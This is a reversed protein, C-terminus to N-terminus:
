ATSATRQAPANAAKTRLSSLRSRLHSLDGEAGSLRQALVSLEDGQNDVGAALENGVESIRREIRWHEAELALARAYGSTLAEDYESRTPADEGCSASELLGDIETLLSQLENEVDRARM